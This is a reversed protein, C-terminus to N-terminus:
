VKFVDTVPAPFGSFDVATDVGGSTQPLGVLYTIRRGHRAPIHGMQWSYAGPAVPIAVTMRELEKLSYTRLNSAFGDWM